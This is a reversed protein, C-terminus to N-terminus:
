RAPESYDARGAATLDIAALKALGWGTGEAEARWALSARRASREAAAQRGTLIRFLRAAEWSTLDGQEYRRWLDAIPDPGLQRGTRTALWVIAAMGALTSGALFLGLESGAGFLEPWM